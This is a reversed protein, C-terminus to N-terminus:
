YNINIYELLETKCVKGVSAGYPYSTIRDYTQLRKDDNTSLAIKNVEETYVNHAESKFRQQSKLIIENNLLCDKYDNFKLRRKIVYKKIGKAKKNNRVDNMLYSYTKPRLAAFETMIKEGLEDKMLGIVKKNKGKPLPRNVEYKSTYFRKEVDNAIDEYFDETKINIIFSGTEMYCLKANNQYKSKIYNYWFEYMLTKSIELISLGIDVSKNMKVNIKKIEIALLNESFWKATHYNPESVLQNRRKDTTVLKIDKHKRVNEMTKGYVSNNMLKFFDKEFDNKVQKRLETNMDICEKTFDEQNFQSVRHVKKLILGHNLAEKLSRIHAAYNNKDYLNCVLKSCKNIKM